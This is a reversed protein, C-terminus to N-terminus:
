TGKKQSLYLPSLDLGNFSIKKMFQAQYDPDSKDGYDDSTLKGQSWAGLAQLTAPQADIRRLADRWSHRFSHFSQRTEMKIAQPLYTERFRKLAYSAHNGYKDPTLDPFLRLDTSAKKRQEVFELFGIKLLEPHLPIKRRSTITKLTKVLAAAHNDADEDGTAVVDLYWTGATTCKLDDLHMQAAENPRMGLFLCMLPLWFRWGTKDYAFPPKHKACEAYFPANFFDRIQLLTLPKRKDSAAIADRKIPKLGEAFNVAILRKKAALDLVERLVALYQQQTVPSLLPKGEKAAAQIALKIPLDGYLKTRNAPLQALVSRVHLCVDYDVAKVLTKDGIIERILALIARQRDLGKTGLGNAAAEEEILHWRQEALQGFTVDPPRRPDFLQDFFARGHDDALRALRRRSLELLARRVLDALLEAPVDPDNISKSASKLLEQGALYIWQQTQPNDPELLTQAVFEAEIKMEDLERMTEPRSNAHREEAQRSQREVYGRVLQVLETGAIPQFNPTPQGGAKEAGLSSYAEFRADFELDRLTRLKRAEKLSTTRLSLQVVKRGIKDALDLPVRRRYYYVGNRRLLRQDTVPKMGQKHIVM